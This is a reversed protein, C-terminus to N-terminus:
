DGEDPLLRERLLLEAPEDLSLDLRAVGDLLEVGRHPGEVDVAAFPWSVWLSGDRLPMPALALRLTRTSDDWEEASLEHTGQGIHFSTGLVRARRDHPSLVLLRCGHAPVSDLRLPGHHHGLPREGWVDFVLAETLRLILDRSEDSWNFLAVVLREGALLEMRDPLDSDFLTPVAAGQPLPPLIFSLRRISRESLRSLNDSLVILGGSLGVVTILSEIEDDSLKTETERALVCDPDNLWLKGHMWQRNMTNRISAEAAPRSNIRPLEPRQGDAFREGRARWWPMVDPGIRMGDVLGVSPLQLGGCGLVFREGMARRIIALGERYAEVPTQRPDQRRGAVAGAFLFDVKVYDFGWEEAVTTFLRSLWDRVGERTLDLAYNRQGWNSIALAPQGSDDRVLWDPHNSVLSSHEGALFPALWLGAKLGAAHVQQVLWQPGHPFRDNWDLWDGIESQYGDDLQLYDIPLGQRHAALFKLNAIVDSETVRTFYYYWSCWGSIAPGSASLNAHQAVAEGYRELSGAADGFDLRLPESALWGSEGVAIGGALSRCHLNDGGLVLQGLFRDSGLFGAVLAGTPGILAVVDTSHYQGAEQPLFGDVPPGEVLDPSSLALVCAPTWSQWGQKWVRDFAGSVVGSLSLASLRHRNTTGTAPLQPLNYEASLLAEPAQGSLALRIRHSECGLTLEFGEDSTGSQAFVQLPESLQHEVERGGEILTLTAVIDAWAGSPGTIAFTGGDTSFGLGSATTLSTM